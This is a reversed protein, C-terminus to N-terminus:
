VARSGRTTVQHGSARLYSLDRRVTAESIDLAAALDSVTLSAGQEVAEGLVRHLRAQRRHVKDEIDLDAPTSVTLSVPVLEDSALPRGTPALASAAVLQRIIPRESMWWDIISAHDPVARIALLQDDPDLTAVIQM